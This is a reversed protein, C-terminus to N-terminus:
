APSTPETQTNHYYIFHMHLSVVVACLRLSFGDFKDFTERATMMTMTSWKNIAFQIINPSNTFPTSCWMLVSLWSNFQIYNYTHPAAQLSVTQGFPCYLWNILLSSHKQTIEFNHSGALLHLQFKCSFSYIAIVAWLTRIVSAITAAVAAAWHTVSILKIFQTIHILNSHNAIASNHVVIIIWVRMSAWISLIILM